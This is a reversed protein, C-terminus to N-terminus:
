VQQSIRLGGSVGDCHEPTNALVISRYFSRTKMARHADFRNTDIALFTKVTLLITKVGVARDFRKGKAGVDNRDVAAFM